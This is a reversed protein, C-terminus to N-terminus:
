DGDSGRGSPATTEVYCWRHTAGANLQEAFANLREMSFFKGGMIWVHGPPCLLGVVPSGAELAVQAADRTIVRRFRGDFPFERGVEWTLDPLPDIALRVKGADTM